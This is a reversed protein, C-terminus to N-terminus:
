NHHWLHGKVFIQYNKNRKCFTSGLTAVASQKQLLPMRRRALLHGAWGAPQKFNPVVRAVRHDFETADPL